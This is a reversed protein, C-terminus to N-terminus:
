NIPSFGFSYYLKRAPTNNYEYRIFLIDAKLEYQLYHLVEQFAQTGYGMGRYKKLILLNEIFWTKPNPTKSLSVYGVVENDKFILFYYDNILDEFKVKEPRFGHLRDLDAIMSSILNFYQRHEKTFKVIKM